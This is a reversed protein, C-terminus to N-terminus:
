DNSLLFFENRSVFFAGRFIVGFVALTWPEVVGVIGRSDRDPGIVGLTTPVVLLLWM